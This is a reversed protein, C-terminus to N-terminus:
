GACSVWDRWGSPTLYRANRLESEKRTYSGDAGFAILDGVKFGAGVSTKTTDYTVFSLNKYTGFADYLSTAAEKPDLPRGGLAQIGITSLANSMAARTRPDTLDYSATLVGALGVEDSGSIAVSKLSQQLGRLDKVEGTLSVGGSLGMAAQLELDTATWGNGQKTYTLAVQGEGEQSGTFGATFPAGGSIEGSRSIKFFVTRTDQGQDNRGFKIGVVNSGTGKGSVYAGEGASGAVSGELGAAYSTEYSPPRSHEPRTAESVSGVIGGFPVPVIDPVFGPPDWTSGEVFGEAARIPAATLDEKIEALEARAEKETDFRYTVSGDGKAVVYGSGSAGEGVKPGKAEASGGFAGEAGASVGGKLTLYWKNPRGPGDTKEELVYGADGGVRVSFVTVSGSVKSDGSSVTCKSPEYPDAAAGPATSCAGKGFGASDIVKCIGRSTGSLVAQGVGTGILLSLALVLVIVLALTGVYETSTQGRDDRASGRQRAPTTKAHM